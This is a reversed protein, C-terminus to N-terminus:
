EIARKVFLSQDFVVNMSVESPVNAIKSLTDKIGDVVAITNTDGGQKMIPLYVSPQGNVRVMNAQIQYADEAHGVDAGTVTSAGVTTIPANNIAQVTSFQSNPYLEYDLPGIKVDGAPLILNANNVARGVDMPSLEYSHLKAPDVYIMIQRFKGGFPQPVSAGAVAALQNRFTLPAACQLTA